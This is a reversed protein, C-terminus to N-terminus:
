KQLVYEAGDYKLKKSSLVTIEKDEMPIYPQGKRMAYPLDNHFAFGHKRQSLLRGSMIEKRSVHSTKDTQLFYITKHKSLLLFRYDGKIKKSRYVRDLKFGVTSQKLDRKKAATNGIRTYYIRSGLSMSMHNADLLVIPKKEGDAVLFYHEGKKIWKGKLGINPATLTKNGYIDMRAMAVMSSALMKQDVDKNASKTRVKDIQWSGVISNSFLLTTTLLLAVIPKKM